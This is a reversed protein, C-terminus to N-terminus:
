WIPANGQCDSQKVQMCEAWEAIYLKVANRNKKTIDEGAVNLLTTKGQEVETKWTCHVPCGYYFFECEEIAVCSGKRHYIIEYPESRQLLMSMYRGSMITFGFYVLLVIALSVMVGAIAHGDLTCNIIYSIVTSVYSAAILTMCITIVAQLFTLMHRGKINNPVPNKGKEIITDGMKIADETIEVFSFSAQNIFALMKSMLRDNGVLSEVIYVDPGTVKGIFLKDVNNKLFLDFKADSMDQLSFYIDFSEDAITCIQEMTSCSVGDVILVKIGPTNMKSIEFNWDANGNNYEAGPLSHAQANTIDSWEQERGYVFVPMDASKRKAIEKLQYTKGSGATGAILTVNPKLQM